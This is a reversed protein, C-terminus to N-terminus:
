ITVFQAGELVAQYAEDYSAYEGKGHLLRAHVETGRGSVTCQPCIGQFRGPEECPITAIHGDRRWFWEQGACMGGCLPCALWFFGHRRAYAAREDETAEFPDPHPPLHDRHGPEPDELKV